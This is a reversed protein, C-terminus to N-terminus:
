VGLRYGQTPTAIYYSGGTRGLENGTGTFKNKLSHHEVALSGLSSLGPRSKFGHGLLM